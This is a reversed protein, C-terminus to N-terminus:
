CIMPLHPCTSERLNDPLWAWMEDISLVAAVHVRDEVAEAARHHFQLYEPPKAEVIAIGPCLVSFTPPRSNVPFISECRCRPASGSHARM